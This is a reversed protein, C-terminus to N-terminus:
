LAGRERLDRLRDLPEEAAGEGGWACGFAQLAGYDSQDVPERIPRSLLAHLNAYDFNPGPSHEVRRRCLWLLGALALVGIAWGLLAAIRLSM